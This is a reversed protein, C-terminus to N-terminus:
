INPQDIEHVALRIFSKNEGPGFIYFLLLFVSKNKLSKITIGGYQPIFFNARRVYLNPRCDHSAILGIIFHCELELSFLIIYCIM